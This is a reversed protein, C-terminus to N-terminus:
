RQSSVGVGAVQPEFKFIKAGEHPELEFAARSDLRNIRIGQPNMSIKLDTDTPVFKIDIKGPYRVGASGVPEFASYQTDTEVEGSRDFTQRRAIDIKETSLDFWIKQVLRPEHISSVDTFDLIFYKRQDKAVPLVYPTVVISSEKILATVNMLLADHIQRPRM